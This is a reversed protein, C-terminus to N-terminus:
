DCIKSVDFSVSNKHNKYTIYTVKMSMESGIDNMDQNNCHKAVYIGDYTKNTDLNLLSIYVHKPKTMSLIRVRELKEVSSEKEYGMKEIYSDYTFGGFFILFFLYPTWILGLYLKNRFTLIHPVISSICWFIIGVFTSGSLFLLICVTLM